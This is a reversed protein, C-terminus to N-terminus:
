FGVSLTYAFQIQPKTEFVIDDGNKSEDGVGIGVSFTSIREKCLLVYSLDVGGGVQTDDRNANVKKSKM